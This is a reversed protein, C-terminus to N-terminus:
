VGRLRKHFAKAPRFTSLGARQLQQAILLRVAERDGTNIVAAEHAEHLAPPYPPALGARRNQDLLVGHALAFLEPDDSVWRPMEIRAIEDGTSMYFYHIRHDPTYRAMIPDQSAFLCSREGAELFEFLLAPDRFGGLHYCLRVEEPGQAHCRRCNEPTTPCLYIRLAKVLELSETNSIYGLVPVRLDRLQDFADLMLEMLGWRDAQENRLGWMVLQGDVLAVCPEPMQRALAPLAALEEVRMLLNLRQENMPQQRRDDWFLEETRHYLRAVSDITAGPADGYRLTVLGMNLLYFRAPSNRDPPMSSGDAAVVSYTRPPEPAPVREDLAGLPQPAIMRARPDHHPALKEDLRDRDYDRMLRRAADLWERRAGPDLSVALNEIDHIIQDLRLSM